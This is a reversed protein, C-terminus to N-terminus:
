IRYIDRGSGIDRVSTEHWEKSTKTNQKHKHSNNEFGQAQNFQSVSQCLSKVKRLSQCEKPVKSKKRRKKKHLPRTVRVETRGNGKKVFAVQLRASTQGKGKKVDQM